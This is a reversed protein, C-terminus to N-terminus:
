QVSSSFTSFCVCTLHPWRCRRSSCGQTYVGNRHMRNRYEFRAADPAIGSTANLAISRKTATEDMGATSCGPRTPTRHDRHRGPRLRVLLRPRHTQTRLTLSPAAAGPQPRLPPSCRILLSLISSYGLPTGSLPFGPISSVRFVSAHCTRSRFGWKPSSTSRRTPRIGRGCRATTWWRFGWRLSCRM